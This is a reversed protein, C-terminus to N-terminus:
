KPYVNNLKASGCSGYSRVWLMSNFDIRQYGFDTWSGEVGVVWPAFEYNAGIQGGGIVGAPRLNGSGLNFNNPSVGNQSVLDTLM